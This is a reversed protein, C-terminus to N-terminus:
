ENKWFIPKTLKKDNVCTVKFNSVKINKKLIQIIESLQKSSEVGIIIKDILKQKKIFTLCGELPSIKNKDLFSQWKSFINKWKYFYKPYTSNKFLLLGQLFISRAHLEVGEKKLDRLISSNIIEQDFVNAPFQIADLYYYKKLLIMEKLSYVSAGIKSILGIKKLNLLANYIMDGNKSFLEDSSHLLVYNIKKINFIKLTSITYNEYQRYINDKPNIKPFKNIIKFNKLSIKKFIKFADPYNFSTEISNIRNKKAVEIIELVKKNNVISKSSIGYHTGFQATGIVIKNFNFSM